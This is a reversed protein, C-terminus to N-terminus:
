NIMIQHESEINKIIRDQLFISGNEKIFDSVKKKERCRKDRNWEEWNRSNGWELIKTKVKTSLELHDFKDFIITDSIYEILLSKCKNWININTLNALTAVNNFIRNKLAKSCLAKYEIRSISTPIQYQLAKDYIKIKYYNNFNIEIGQGQGIINLKNFQKGKLSVFLSLITKTELDLKTLNYGFELQHIYTNDPDLNFNYEMWDIIYSMKELTFTDHNMADGKYSTIGHLNNYLKHASFMIKTMNNQLFKIRIDKYKASKSGNNLAQGYQSFVTEINVDNSDLFTIIASRTSESNISLSM